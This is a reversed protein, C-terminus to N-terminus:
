FAFLFVLDNVNTGSPGTLLLGGIKEFFHYSDNRKIFDDSILGKELSKELTRGTIIAGAADTPGDEGDTALTILAVNELGALDRVAGLALELNRGGLGKGKLIVTTEGGAVICAPRKVPMGDLAVQRLISALMMGVQLAEGHLYTTLLLPNFGCSKAIEVAHVAAQYNSAVVVNQVKELCPDGPKVTEPSKGQCGATLYNFISPPIKELLDYKKLINIADWYTTPDAVTPGSAIVDLPSGIVDSVILTLMKAPFVKRALGGGKVLDLHKRLTNIEGIEAGCALLHRTLVQIDDLSVGEVPLSMLASGGGSILGIVLDDERCDQVLEFLTQASRLSSDDPVPHGGTTLLFSPPLNINQNTSLHKSIIIGATIFEGLLQHLCKTMLLSAKGTGFVLIRRFSRLDYCKEGVWLQGGVVSLHSHIAEMPDAAKIAAAIILEARQADKYELNDELTSNVKKLM